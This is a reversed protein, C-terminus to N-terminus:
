QQRIQKLFSPINISRQEKLKKLMTDIVIYTGTRGVGASVIQHLGRVHSSKNKFAFHSPARVRRLLIIAARDGTKRTFRLSRPRPM